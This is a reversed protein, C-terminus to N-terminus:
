GSLRQVGCYCYSVIFSPICLLVVLDTDWFLCLCMVTQVRCRGTFACVVVSFFPQQGFFSFCTPWPWGVPLLPLTLLSSSDLM